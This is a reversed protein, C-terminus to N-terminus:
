RRPQLLVGVEHGPELMWSSFAYHSYDTIGEFRDRYRDWFRDGLWCARTATTIALLNLPGANNAAALRLSRPLAGGLLWATEVRVKDLSAKAIATRAYEDLGVVLSGRFAAPDVTGVPARYYFRALRADDFPSYQFLTTLPRTPPGYQENWWIRLLSNTLFFLPSLSDAIAPAIIGMAGYARDIGDFTSSRSGPRLPAGVTDRQATGSPIDGFEREVLARVDVNSFDGVLALAANAPAYLRALQAGAQAPTVGALASGSAIRLISEDDLGRAVDGVRYYLSLDIRGLLGEGLQRRVSALAHQLAADSVTVGHARQAVEHLVGPFQASSAVETLLALHENTTLAWGLPRISDMEDRSREPVGGVPATFQLEALLRALGPQAAPEYLSGARYALTTAVGVAGPVHRVRVELGNPLRWAEAMTSDALLQARAPVAPALAILALALALPPRSV